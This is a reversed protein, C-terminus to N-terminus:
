THPQKLAQKTCSAICNRKRIEVRPVFGYLYRCPNKPFTDIKPECPSITWVSPTQGLGECASIHESKRVSTDSPKSHKLFQLAQREDASGTFLVLMKRDLLKQVIANINAQTGTVAFHKRNTVRDNTGPQFIVIRTDDPIASDVHALEEETTIGNLGQNEVVVDYGESKLLRELQAPYADSRSVGKGFTNSAGFAVIHVPEAWALHTLSLGILLCLKRM